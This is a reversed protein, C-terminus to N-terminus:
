QNERKAYAADRERIMRDAEAALYAAYEPDFEELLPVYDDNTPEMM